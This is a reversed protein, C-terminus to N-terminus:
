TGMLSAAPLPPPAPPTWPPAQETVPEGTSITTNINDM